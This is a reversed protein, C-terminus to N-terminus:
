CLATRPSGGRQASAVYILVQWLWDEVTCILHTLICTLKQQSHLEGRTEKSQMVFDDSSLWLSTARYASIPAVCHATVKSCQYTTSQASEHENNYIVTVDEGWGTTDVRSCLIIVLWFIAHRLNTNNGRNCTAARGSTQQMPHILLSFTRIAVSIKPFSRVQECSAHPKRSTFGHTYNQEM